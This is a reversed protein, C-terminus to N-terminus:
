PVAIVKGQHIFLGHSPQQVRIGRLDYYITEGTDRASVTNVGVTPFMDTEVINEFEKWGDRSQYTQKTGMPVYLTARRALGPDVGNNMLAPAAAKSYIAVLAPCNDFMNNAVQLMGDPLVAYELMPNNAFAGSMISTVGEPVELAPFNGGSFAYTRIQYYENTERVKLVDPWQIQKLPTGEFLGDAITELSKPLAIRELSKCESFVFDALSVHDALSVDHLSMSQMFAGYGISAGDAVQLTQFLPICYFSLHDVVADSPLRIDTIHWSGAFARQGVQCRTGTLTVDGRLARCDAFAQEGVFALTAPLEVLRLGTYAFAYENVRELTGPLTFYHLQQSPQMDGNEDLRFEAIFAADPITNGPVTCGSMDVGTTVGDYICRRVMKLDEGTAHGTVVLSDVSDWGDGLAQELSAGENVHVRVINQAVSLNMAGAM